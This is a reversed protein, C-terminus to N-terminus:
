KSKDKKKSQHLLPDILFVGLLLGLTFGLFFTFYAM